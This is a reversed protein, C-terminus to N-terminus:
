RQGLLLNIERANFYAPDFGTSMWEATEEHRPHGTDGLAELMEAYGCPGGCDDPPCARRGAVCHPHRLKPDRDVIAEVVVDHEWGDGFDYDWRMKSGVGPLLDGVRFKREDRVDWDPDLKGYMVGDSDFAHLHGGYWGMATELAGSLKALTWSSDVLLRRWVPPRVQRLTVKLQRVTGTGPSSDVTQLHGRSAMAVVEEHLPEPRGAERMRPERVRDRRRLVSPILAEVDLDTKVSLSWRALVTATRKNGEYFGQAATIEYALAAAADVPDSEVRVRQLARDVRELDDDDASTSPEDPGRVAENCAIAEDLSPFRVARTPLHPARPLARHRTRDGRPVCAGRGRSSTAPDPGRCASRHQECGGTYGIFEPPNALAKSVRPTAVPPNSNVSRVVSERVAQDSHM